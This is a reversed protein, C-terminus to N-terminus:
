LGPLVVWISWWGLPLLRVQWLHYEWGWNQCWVWIEIGRNLFPWYYRHPRSPPVYIEGWAEGEREPTISNKWKTYKETALNNTYFVFRSIFAIMEPLKKWPPLRECTLLLSNFYTCWKSGLSAFGDDAGALVVCSVQTCPWPAQVSWFVWMDKVKLLSLIVAEGMDWVFNLIM